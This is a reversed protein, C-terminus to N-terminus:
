IPDVTLSKFGPVEDPAMLQMGEATASSGSKVISRTLATAFERLAQAPSVSGDALFARFTAISSITDEDADGIGFAVINPHSSFGPDILARYESEWGDDTPHGDTLFFVVPRYVKHGEGKLRAVDAEITQKLSRFAAGYATGGRIALVPLQTVTSLDSLELLVEADDSFGIICFQTKDAVVPNAGIEQHLDPLASNISEIPEGDMSGSEDCVLYFPLIQRGPTAFAPQSM